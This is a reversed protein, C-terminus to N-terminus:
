TSYILIRWRATFNWIGAYIPPREAMRMGRGSGHGHGGLENLAARFGRALTQAPGRGYYHLFFIRPQEDLM